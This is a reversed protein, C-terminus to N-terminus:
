PKHSLWDLAAALHLAGLYAAATKDYRTAVARWEKLRAWLNEVRHRRRYAARDYDRPAARHTPHAPVVPAAGAARIRERWAAASYGRDCVM